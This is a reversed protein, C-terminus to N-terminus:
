KATMRSVVNVKGKHLDEQKRYKLSDSNSQTRKKKELVYKLLERLFSTHFM